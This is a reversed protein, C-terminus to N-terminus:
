YGGSTARVVGAGAEVYEIKAVALYRACDVPDKSAEDKGQTGTYEKMCAIFNQCRDSVFMKPSNTVDMPRSEDWALMGGLVQLGADEQVGPAPLVDMGLESLEEAPTTTGEKM